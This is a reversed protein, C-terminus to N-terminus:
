YNFKAFDNQAKKYDNPIGIDIFYDDFPFGSINLDHLHKEFVDKELSFRSPLNLSLIKNRNIIYTGGNILCNKIGDRKEGFQTIRYKNDISVFGYRSCDEIQRLALSIDAAYKTHQELFVEINLDFYTDGNLILVEDSHCYQMANLIGGGTGLPREEIAYDIKIDNFKNGFFDSIKSSLYGTSLVVHKTKYKELQKFIYFLFPNRNVPAMPKPIDNIISSLRTGFGGALIIIDQKL